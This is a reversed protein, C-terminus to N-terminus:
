TIRRVLLGFGDRMILISRIGKGVLVRL